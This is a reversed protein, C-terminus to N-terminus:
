AIDRCKKRDSPGPYDLDQFVFESGDIPEIAHDVIGWVAISPAPSSTAIVQLVAEV